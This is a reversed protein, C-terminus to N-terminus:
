YLKQWKLRPRKKSPLKRKSSLPRTDFQEENISRGRGLAADPVGKLKLLHLFKDIDVPRAPAFNIDSIIYKVLDFLNSGKSQDSYIICGNDAINIHGLYHLLLKAKNQLRKPILSIIDSEKSNSSHDIVEVKKTEASNKGSTNPQSHKMLELWSTPVVAM